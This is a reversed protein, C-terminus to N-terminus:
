TFIRRRIFATSARLLRSYFPRPVRFPPPPPSVVNSLYRSAEVIYEGGHKVIWEINQRQPHPNIFSCNWPTDTYTKAVNPPRRWKIKPQVIPVKAQNRIAWNARHKKDLYVALTERRLKEQNTMIVEVKARVLARARELEGYSLQTRRIYRTPLLLSRVVPLPFMMRSALPPDTRLGGKQNNGCPISLMSLRPDSDVSASNVSTLFCVVYSDPGHRDLVICPRVREKQEAMWWEMEDLIRKETADLIFGQSLLFEYFVYRLRTKHFCFALDGPHVERQGYQAQPSKSFDDVNLAAHIADWYPDKKAGVLGPM